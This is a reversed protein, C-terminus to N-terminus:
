GRSSVSPNAGKPTVLVQNLSPLSGVGPVNPGPASLAGRALGAAQSFAETGTGPEGAGPASPPAPQVTLGPFAALTELLDQDDKSDLVKLFAAGPAFNGQSAQQQIFSMAADRLQERLILEEAKTVDRVTGTEEMALRRPMMHRDVQQALRIEYSLPDQGAKNGYTVRVRYDGKIDQSPLYSESYPKAGATGSIYKRTDLYTEDVQYCLSLVEAWSSAEFMQDTAVATSLNGTIANVFAASAINQQLQGQRAEPFVAGTRSTGQMNALLQFVSGAPQDPPMRRMFGQPSKAHLARGLGFDEPNEIDFDVIPSSVWDAAADVLLNTIRNEANLVSLVQDYVGRFEGDATVRSSIVVPVRGLRNPVIGGLQVGRAEGKETPIVAVRIFETSDYYELVEVLKTEKFYPTLPIDDPFDARLSGLTDQYAVLFNNIPRDPSYMRDPLAHRPDIRRIIPFRNEPTEDMGPLVLKFTAGCHVRDMYFRQMMVDVRNCELYYNGIREKKEARVRGKESAPDVRVTPMIAAALASRDDEALQVINPVKPREQTWSEDPFVVSWDGRAVADAEAIRKLYNRWHMTRATYESLYRQTNRRETALSQLDAITDTM